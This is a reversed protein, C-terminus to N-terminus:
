RSRRLSDLGSMSSAAVFREHPPVELDGCAPVLLRVGSNGPQMPLLGKQRKQASVESPV